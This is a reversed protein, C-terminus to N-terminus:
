IYTNYFQRCSMTPSRGYQIEKVRVSNILEGGELDDVSQLLFKNVIFPYSSSLMKYAVTHNEKWNQKIM